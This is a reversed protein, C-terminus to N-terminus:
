STQTHIALPGLQAILSDKHAYCWGTGLGQGKVVKKTRLRLCHQHGGDRDRGRFSHGERLCQHFPVPFLEVMIEIYFPPSCASPSTILMIWFTAHLTGKMLWRSAKRRIQTNMAIELRIWTM